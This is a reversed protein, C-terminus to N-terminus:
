SSRLRSLRSPSGASRPSSAGRRLPAAALGPAAAAGRAAARLRAPPVPKRLVTFGAARLAAVGPGESDGTLIAAALDAGARARLRVVLETGTPGTGLRYDALVLDPDFGSAAALAEDASAAERVECGWGRLLEGTAHACPTTTTWWSCAARRSASAALRAARAAGRAHSRRARTARVAFTSGRGPASRLEIRTTSCAHSATWSRSASGSAARRAVGAAPPLRRLDRGARSRPHRARQRAGRDVVEAGRPRAGILVAGAPTYRIANSVLNRLIRLLLLRDSEVALRTPVVRLRLGKAEAPGAFDRELQAFLVRLEVREREARVAGADLKSRDLLSTLMEDLEQTSAGIREVLERTEPDSLRGALAEALLGVAHLPQRLDHSAAAILNTKARSERDAREKALRERTAEIRAVVAALADTDTHTYIDGSRKAGLCLCPTSGPGRAPDPARPRRRM